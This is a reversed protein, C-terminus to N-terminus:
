AGGHKKGEVMSRESRLQMANCERQMAMMLMAMEQWNISNQRRKKKAQMM